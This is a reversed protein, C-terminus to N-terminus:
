FLHIQLCCCCCCCWSCDCVISHNIISATTWSILANRFILLTVVIFKSWFCLDSSFNFYFDNLWQNIRVNRFNSSTLCRIRNKKHTYENLVPFERELKLCKLRSCHGNRLKDKLRQTTAVTKIKRDWELRENARENM